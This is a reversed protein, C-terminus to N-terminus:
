YRMGHRSQTRLYKKASLQSLRLEVSKSLQKIISPRNYQIRHQCLNNKQQRKHLSSPINLKRFEFDCRYFERSEQQM